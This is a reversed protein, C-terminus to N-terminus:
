SANRSNSRTQDARRSSRSLLASESSLVVRRARARRQRHGRELEVAQVPPESRRPPHRPRSASRRPSPQARRRWLDRGRCPAGAEAARARQGWASVVATAPSQSQAARSPHPDLRPRALQRACDRKRRVIDIGAQNDTCATRRESQDGCHPLNKWPRPLLECAYACESLSSWWTKM